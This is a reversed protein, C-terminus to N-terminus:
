ESKAEGAQKVFNLRLDTVLHQYDRAERGQVHPLLKEVLWTTADIALRAQELDKQVAGTFPDAHLGLMQWSVASLQAIAVRLVAYVDLPRLEQQVAEEGAAPEESGAEAGETKADDAEAM